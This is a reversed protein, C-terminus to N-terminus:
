DMTPTASHLFKNTNTVCLVSVVKAELSPYNLDSAGTEEGSYLYSQEAICKIM